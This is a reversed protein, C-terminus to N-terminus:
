AENSSFIYGNHVAVGRALTESVKQLINLAHSKDRAPILIFDETFWGTLNAEPFRDALRGLESVNIDFFIVGCSDGFEYRALRSLVEAMSLTRIGPKKQNLVEILANKRGSEYIYDTWANCDFNYLTSHIPQFKTKFGLTRLIYSWLNILLIDGNYKLRLKV